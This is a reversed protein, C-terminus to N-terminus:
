RVICDPHMMHLTARSGQRGTATVTFRTCPGSGGSPFTASFRGARSARVRRVSTDGGTPHLMVRVRERRHFHHGRVSLPQLAALTLSAHARAQSTSAPAVLALAVVGALLVLSRSVV